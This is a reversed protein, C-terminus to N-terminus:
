DAPGLLSFLAGQPDRLTVATGRPTEYPLTVVEGGAGVAAATAAGVDRVPFSVEWRARLRPDPTAEIGGGILAAVPEGGVLLRVEDHQEEYSVRYGPSKAWDFVEGYFLAAAFADNTHLELWAPAHGAGIAWGPARDGEWLGFAACDRDAAVVARGRGLELPGVAVTAGREVVRSAAEDASTVAFFVTWRVALGPSVSTENFGAVPEGDQTAVRFEPGLTGDEFSWDLVAGYFDETAAMDGTTLSVWCPAGSAADM